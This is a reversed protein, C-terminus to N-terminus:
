PVPEGSVQTGITVKSHKHETLRIEGVVVEPSVRLGYVDLRLTGGAAHMDIAKDTMTISTEGIRIHLGGGKTHVMYDRQNWELHMAEGDSSPSPMADSFVGPLVFAQALDGGPAMLVVQEGVAPPWWFKGGDPPGARLTFWPLWDTEQGNVLVRCRAPAQLRVASVTGPTVLNNVQRGTEYPSEQQAVPQHM